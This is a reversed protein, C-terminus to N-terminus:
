SQKRPERPHVGQPYLTDQKQLVSLCTGRLEPLTGRGHGREKGACHWVSTVAQKKDMGAQSGGPFARLEATLSTKLRPTVTWLVTTLAVAKRDAATHESSFAAEKAQLWMVVEQAVQGKNTGPQLWQQMKIGSIYQTAQSSAMM